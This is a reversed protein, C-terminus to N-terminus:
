QVLEVAKLKNESDSRFVVNGRYFTRTLMCSLDTCALDTLLWVPSGTELGATMSNAEHAPMRLAFVRRTQQRSGAIHSAAYQGRCHAETLADSLPRIGLMWM